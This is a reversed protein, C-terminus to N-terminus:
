VTASRSQCKCECTWMSYPCNLTTLQVLRINDKFKRFSFCLEWIFDVCAGPFCAVAGLVEKSHSENIMKRFSNINVAVVVSDEFNCEKCVTENHM